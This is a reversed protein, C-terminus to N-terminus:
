SAVVWRVWVGSAHLRWLGAPGPAPCLGAVGSWTRTPSESGTYDHAPTCGMAQQVWGAALRTEDSADPAAPDPSPANHRARLEGAADAVVDRWRKLTPETVVHGSVGVMGAHALAIEGVCQSLDELRVM